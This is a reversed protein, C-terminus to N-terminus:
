RYVERRHGIRVVVIEIVRDEIRAMVRYDGVRYKWLDGLRTGKLAEGISRPDELRTLRESLFKWVRKRVSGDLDNLDSVADPDLRLEWTRPM